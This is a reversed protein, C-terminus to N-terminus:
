RFVDRISEGVREVEEDSLEPFIPLSLVERSAREAQPCPAPDLHTFAPQRSLALPYHVATGIGREALQSQLADRRATRVTYQHYVTVAGEPEDLLTIGDLGALLGHYKCAIQRRRDNDAELGALRLNLVAAQLADLRSNTGVEGHEYHRRRGHNAIRRVRELLASDDGTVAGADGFAGLNKSPYFSWTALRGFTGVRRGRWAAGHAQAADELLWLGRAECLELVAEVDFPRGYLHVGIVGVTRETIRESVSGADLNLTGPDVDCFVPRGGAWEVAAGTAIFTFAPVIVEDGPGVDLARLAVTLADTGNAVGVCGGAGLYEAFGSEFTAVEEGGIFSSSALLRAWHAEVEPGVREILRALSFVPIPEGNSMPGSQIHLRSSLGEAEVSELGQPM